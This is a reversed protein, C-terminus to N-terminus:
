KKIALIDDEKLVIYKVEQNEKIERGNICFHSFFVYDGKAVESIESGVEIVQGEMAQQESDPIDFKPSVKKTIDTPEILINNKTPQIM